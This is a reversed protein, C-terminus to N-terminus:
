REGREERRESNRKGGAGGVQEEWSVRTDHEPCVSKIAELSQGHRCQSEAAPVYEHSSLFLRVHHCLHLNQSQTHPIFFAIPCARFNIAPPM